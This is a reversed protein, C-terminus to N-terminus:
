DRPLVKAVPTEPRWGEWNAALIAPFRDLTALLARANSSLWGTLEVVSAYDADLAPLQWIPEHHSVRNRLRRITNLKTAVNSRTLERRIAHPFATRLMAPWLIPEYPRSMLSTWFSFSVEPMLTRHNVPRGRRRLYETAKAVQDLESTQLLGPRHQLWEADGTHIAVAEDLRNRLAVEFISLSPYLAESLAINWCYRAVTGQSDAGVRYPAVRTASFCQALDDPSIQQM